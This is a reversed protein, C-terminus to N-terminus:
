SKNKKRKRIRVYQYKSGRDIYLEYGHAYKPILLAVGKHTKFITKDTKYVMEMNKKTINKVTIYM